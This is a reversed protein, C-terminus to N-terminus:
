LTCLLYRYYIALYHEIILEPELKWMWIPSLGCCWKRARISLMVQTSALFILSCCWVPFDVLVKIPHSKWLSWNQLQGLDKKLSWWFLLTMIWVKESWRDCTKHIVWDAWETNEHIVLHHWHSYLCNERLAIYISGKQNSLIEIFYWCNHMMYGETWGTSSNLWCFTWGWWDFIIKKAKKPDLHSPIKYCKKCRNKFLMLILYFM